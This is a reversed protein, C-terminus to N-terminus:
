DGCDRSRYNPRNCATSFFKLFATESARTAPKKQVSDRPCYTRENSLLDAPFKSGVIRLRAASEREREEEGRKKKEGEM